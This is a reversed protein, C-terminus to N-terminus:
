LSVELLEEHFSYGNAVKLVGRPLFHLSYLILTSQIM